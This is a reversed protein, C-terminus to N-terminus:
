RVERLNSRLQELERKREAEAGTEAATRYSDGLKLYAEAVHKYLSPPIQRQQLLFRAYIRRMAAADGRQEANAAMALLDEPLTHSQQLAAAKREFEAARQDEGLMSAYYAQSQYVILLKGSSLRPSAVLYADLEVLAQKYDGRNAAELARLYPDDAIPAVPRPGAETTPDPAVPPPALPSPSPSPSPLLMVAVMLLLNIALLMRLMRERRHRPQSPKAPEQLQARAAALADQGQRLASEAARLAEDELDPRRPAQQGGRAMLDALRASEAAAAGVADATSASPPAATTAVPKAATKKAASEVNDPQHESM